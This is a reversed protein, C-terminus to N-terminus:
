EPLDVMPVVTGGAALHLSWTGGSAEFAWRLGREWAEQLMPAHKPGRKGGLMVFRPNLRFLVAGDHARRRLYGIVEEICGARIRPDNANEHVVPYIGFGRLTEVATRPGHSNPAQGVPDCTTRNRQLFGERNRTLDALGKFGGVLVPDDM